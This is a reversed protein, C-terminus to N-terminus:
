TLGQTGSESKKGYVRRLVLMSETVMWIELVFVVLGIPFLLWDSKLYFTGMNIIM